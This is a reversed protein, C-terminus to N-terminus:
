APAAQPEREKAAALLQAIRGQLDRWIKELDPLVSAEVSGPTYAARVYLQTLARAASQVDEMSPALSRYYEYPTQWPRRPERMMKGYALLVRYVHDVVQAPSLRPDSFPNAWIDVEFEDEQEGKKRRFRALLGRPFHRVLWRVLLGLMVLAVVGLGILGLLRWPIQSATTRPTQIPRM